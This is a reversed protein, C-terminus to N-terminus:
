RQEKAPVRMNAARGRLVDNRIAEKSVGPITALARAYAEEGEMGQRLGRYFAEKVTAALLNYKAVSAHGPKGALRGSRTLDRILQQEWIAAGANQVAKANTPIKRAEDALHEFTKLNIKGAAFLQAARRHAESPTVNGGVIDAKLQMAAASGATGIARERQAQARDAVEWGWRVNARSRQLDEWANDEIREQIAFALEADEPRLKGESILQSVRSPDLKKGSRLEVSLLGLTEKSREEERQERVQEIRRAEDRLRGEQQPTWTPTGDARRSNAVSLLLDPDELQEAANVASDLLAARAKNRDVGPPLRGMFSEVDIRGEKAAQLELEDGFGRIVKEAEQARIIEQASNLLQPRLRELQSYAEMNAAPDGFDVPRGEDDLLVSRFRREILENVDELDVPQEGRTPDADAGRSLLDEIEPKLMLEVEAARKRARSMAIATRYATSTSMKQEDAKGMAEDAVAQGANERERKLFRQNDYDAYKDVASDVMGLVRRVADVEGDARFGDRMQMRNRLEPAQDLRRTPLVADRNNTIRSQATTRGGLTALNRDAM